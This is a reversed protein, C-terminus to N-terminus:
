DSTGEESEEDEDENVTPVPTHTGWAIPDTMSSVSELGTIKGRIYELRRQLQIKMEEFEKRRRTLEVCEAEMEQIENDPTDNLTGYRIDARLMIKRSTVEKRTRMMDRYEKQCRRLLLLDEESPGGTGTKTSKEESAAPETAKGRDHEEIREEPLLAQPKSELFQARQSNTINQQTPGDRNNDRSENGENEDEEAEGTTKKKSDVLALDFVPKKNMIEEEDGEGGTTFQGAEACKTKQEDWRTRKQAKESGKSQSRKIGTKKILAVFDPALKSIEEDSYYEAMKEATMEALPRLPDVLSEVSDVPTNCSLTRRAFEWSGKTKFPRATSDEGRIRGWGEDIRAEPEDHIVGEPIEAAREM